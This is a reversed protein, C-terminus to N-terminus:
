RAKADVFFSGVVNEGCEIVFQYQAKHDVGGHWKGSWDMAIAFIRAMVMACDRDNHCSDFLKNHRSLTASKASAMAKWRGPKTNTAPLWKVTIAQYM